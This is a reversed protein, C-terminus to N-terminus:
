TYEWRYGGATKQYGSACKQISTICINTRKSAEVTSEFCELLVGGKNIMAVPRRNKAFGMNKTNKSYAPIPEESGTYYRWQYGCASKQKGSLCASIETRSTKAAEAALTVSGYTAIYDGSLSYQSVRKNQSRQEKPRYIQDEPLRELEGVEDARKCIYGGCTGTGKSLHLSLRSTSVGLYASAERSTEFTAVRKGSLDFAVVSLANGNNGGRSLESIRRLGEASFETRAQGGSRINYGYKPDNSRYLAIYFRERDNAEQESLGTELIEHTFNSWGYKKIASNFHKCEKYGNGGTWRRTLDECKTQGIYCKGDLKNTHKYISYGKGVYSKM